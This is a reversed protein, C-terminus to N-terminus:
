WKSKKRFLSRLSFAKNRGGILDTFAGRHVFARTGSSTILKEQCLRRVIGENLKSDKSAELICTEYFEQLATDVNALAKLRSPTGQMEGSSLEQWWRQCVIQLQIPEIFEGKLEHPRGSFPDEVQIRLLEEVIMEIQSDVEEQSVSKLNKTSEGATEIPGRIAALAAEKQFRELRFRPRLREPLIDTFRDLEALYDERIVFVIRLETTQDVTEAIQKFFDYQQERWTNGPYYTFLEEMQDFVLVKHDTYLGETTAFYDQLFQVLTKKAVSRPEVEPRLSQFANIMYFNVLGSSTHSVNFSDLEIKTDSTIGVRARPLVDFGYKGLTPAVQAEMISTKGSGSQAYVLVLRHGLILSVIEDTEDDRGFFRRQDEQSRTYPRPGVYPDLIESSSVKSAASVEM